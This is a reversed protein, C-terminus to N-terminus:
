GASEEDRSAVPGPDEPNRGKRGGALAMASKLMAGALHFPTVKDPPHLAEALHRRLTEARRLKGSSTRPLTGPALVHIAEPRLNTAALVADHCAEELAALEERGAARVHEVFVHLKEGTAGEPLHSVAVVCGTRVGPLTDAAHEIEVPSYNRGNLIVVDKARSTLFLEGDHIFGLDGTALWGDRLARATAEPRGLYGEMLSPGRVMVEGIRGEGLEQGDEGDIRIKTGPLPQGVAVLEIGDAEPVAEGEALHRRSFRRSDFPRALDSFTVALTAESLGYVPTLAEPRFGWRAFREQFARLVPPAVPEAGNLALRWAGLDVGELEEDRIKEVCLGYAFNPAVSISARSRSLARLWLAPRAVFVEPPLLTLVGPRELAPFVCGILGMDHYLPLWSVGSHRVEGEDPWFSNLATIQAMVARHSLAVPKPDVTTGSSFQVLALDDPEIEVQPSEGEGLEALTRCGLRPAADRIASGLLRRIRPETLVLVAGASGLMAATRALYEDLRGLRVPPYLPVPVAGALLIGFFAHFFEVGTPYILAVREGRAIGRSALAGAVRRGEAELDPWSLWTERERRDLLLLGTDPHNRARALLDVLTPLELRPPESM